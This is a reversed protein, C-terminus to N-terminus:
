EQSVPNENRDTPVKNRGAILLWPETLGLVRATLLFIVGGVALPIGLRATRGFPLELHGLWRLTVLCVISMVITATLTKLTTRGIEPWLLRGVHRQLLLATAICQGAAVFATSLALGRGHLPWILTLNLVLNVVMAVLGVYMPTMRDGVAYFGRQLILLGCYAWVGSGYAVIMDGTQRAAEADFRGYQFFLTALPHGILMLGASAPLGIAIVLRVGLSLDSRLKDTEGRQSHSTLLPFLVTGLAVGFVGLPFQYLRQGLYLATATGAPLPYNASWPFPMQRGADAPQTFEWAIFSDLVSNLQTISLGIVVPLMDRAIKGVRDLATRWDSRFGFGVTRLVFMPFLLQVVGGTVVCLGTVYIRNEDDSWLPVLVLLAVLWVINLISPVLAPWLFRGLANLVAGMQAALCILLVYPLMIVTLNRLLLANPSLTVWWSLSFLILEALVITTCLFIALSVFVAWTVRAASERGNERLDNVFVPLFATTLAGEGLLVRALNPLRFAVTFADM